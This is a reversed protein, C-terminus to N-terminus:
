KQSAKWALIDVGSEKLLRTALFSQDAMCMDYHDALKNYEPHFTDYFDRLQEVTWGYRSMLHWLVLSDVDVEVSKMYEAMAKQAEIDLAKKEAVTMRGGIIHGASKIVEM